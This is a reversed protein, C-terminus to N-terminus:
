TEPLNKPATTPTNEPEPTSDLNSNGSKVITPKPTKDTTLNTEKKITPTDDPDSPYIIENDTEAIKTKNNGSFIFAIVGLFLLIGVGFLPALYFFSMPIGGTDASSNSKSATSINAFSPTENESKTLNGDFSVPSASKSNSKDSVLEVEIKLGGGLNLSDGNKLTARENLDKGNLTSGNSSNCDAAIFVDGLREIKLHERSIKESPISLDNESHRGVVFKDREVLVRQFDGNEDTYKLWLETM